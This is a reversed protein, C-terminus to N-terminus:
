GLWTKKLIYIKEEESSQDILINLLEALLSNLKLTNNKCCQLAIVNNMSSSDICDSHGKELEVLKEMYVTKQNCGRFTFLTMILFAIKLDPFTM